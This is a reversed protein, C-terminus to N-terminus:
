GEAPVPPPSEEHACVADGSGALADIRRLTDAHREGARLGARALGVFRPGFDQREECDRLAEEVAALEANLSALRARLDKLASTAPLHLAASRELTALEAQMGNRVADGDTSDDTDALRLELTTIRDLLEGPGVAVTITPPKREAKAAALRALEGAMRAFVADWDGASPQRFLRMSPYWPSDERDRLWRWDAAFPLLMWVPRGLTGALHAVSTDVSVLLDLASLAAATDTWDRLDPGLPTVVDGLAELVAADAPRVDKQLAYFRVGPIRLWPALRHLPISRNHDNKHSPNGAWVIGVRLAGGAPDNSIRARWREVRDPGADMLPMPPPITELTTAFARPLSMLPCQADCPPLPDNGAVLTVGPMPGFLGKLPPPVEFVVKWGREVAMPVYRAFQITDGLGQESHLLLTRGEGREGNWLPQAFGRADLGTRPRRWEYADWGEAFRGELLLTFARNLQGDPYDPRVALARHYFRLAGLSDGLTQLSNAVNNLVEPLDPNLVLARRHADLAEGSRGLAQLTNGLNNATESADPKLRLATRHAALAANFDRRDQLATGLLFHGEAHDPRLVLTRRFAAVAEDPSKLDRFANGLSQAAEAHDPRLALAARFAAVAEGPRKLKRLSVGLDHQAEPNDPFHRTAERFADAAEEIRDLRFLATGRNFLISTFAPQLTLARGYAVVADELRDLTKLANGLNNQAEPYDPRLALADRYAAMAEETRDLGQLAYGLNFFYAPDKRIAIADAILRASREFHRRQYCAVGLLHLAESNRPNAKLLRAYIAEACAIDGARHFEIAQALDRSQRDM